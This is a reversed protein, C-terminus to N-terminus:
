YNFAMMFVFIFYIVCIVLSISGLIGLVLGVIGMWSSDAKVKGAKVNKISMISCILAPISTIGCCATVGLIGCIFGALGMNDAPLGNTPGGNAPYISEQVTQVPTEQVDSAPAGCSACFKGGPKLENGCNQCSAMYM